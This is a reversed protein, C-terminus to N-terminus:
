RGGGLTVSDTRLPERDTGADVLERLAADLRDGIVDWDFRAEVTRRGAAALRRCLEDDALLREIAAAFAAPTDAILLEREHALGLGECGIPTSVVPIGRALAELIKLRTGGGFRLPVVLLRARELYPHTSPVQGALTTPLPSRRALEHTEPRPNSGIVTLSAPRRLRPLIQEVLYALADVNPTYDLSGMALIETSDPQEHRLPQAACDVGNPVLRVRGPAAQELQQKEAESVALVRAAAAAAQREYRGVPGIQARAVLGRPRRGLAEAMTRMRQSEVNHCDLVARSQLEAPVYRQMYLQSVLLVDPDRALAFDRFRAEAAADASYHEYYARGRAISAALTLKRRVPRAPLPELRLPDCLAELAAVDEPELPDGPLLSFLSVQWGHSVLQRILNLDRIREGSV